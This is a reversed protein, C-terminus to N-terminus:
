QGNWTHELGYCKKFYSLPIMYCPEEDRDDDRDQRGMWDIPFSMTRKTVHHYYVGMKPLRVIFMAALGSESYEALQKVKSAGLMVSGMRLKWGPRDKVEAIVAVNRGPTLTYAFDFNYRPGDPMKHQYLIRNQTAMYQVWINSIADEAIRDHQTEHKM